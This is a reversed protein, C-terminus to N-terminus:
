SHRGRGQAFENKSMPVTQSSSSSGSDVGYKAKRNEEVQEFWVDLEDEFPWMWEPPVEEKTLNEHWDLVRNAHEMAM